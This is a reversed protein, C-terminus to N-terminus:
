KGNQKVLDYTHQLADRGSWKFHGPIVYVADPYKAMVRKITAPWAAVDADALYGLSTNEISKVLCGGYLIKQKGFWVVINDATHGKGPYYTKFTYGGVTFTTDGAFYYEAQRDGHQKCLQLTQLSSYTKVGHQQLFELGITRDDHFHTSICLVVKQHHRAEISDLLPQFQTSDWPTDFMVVGNNTVLYMSNSPFPSGDLIHYTTYVYFSDTLHTISLGPTATQSFSYQCFCVASLLNIIFKVLKMYLLHVLFCTFCKKYWAVYCKEVNKRRM